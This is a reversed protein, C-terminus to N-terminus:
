IKLQLRDEIVRFRIHKSTSTSLGTSVSTVTSLSGAVNKVIKATIIGGATSVNAVGAYFNSADTYRAVVGTDISAGTPTGNTTALIRIDQHPGAIDVVTIRDSAGATVEVTGQTGSTSYDAAVGGSTTWAHGSTSTGWGNSVTRTFTDDARRLKCRFPTDLKINPYFPSMARLPTLDGEHNNFLAAVASPDATAAGSRKGAKLNVVSDLQRSTLDTFTWTGPAAEPDAGFAAEWILPLDSDPFAM